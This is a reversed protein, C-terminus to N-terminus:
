YALVPIRKSGEHSRAREVSILTQEGAGAEPEDHWHSGAVQTRQYTSNLHPYGASELSTAEEVGERM